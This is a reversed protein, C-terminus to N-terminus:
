CRGCVLPSIRVGRLGYIAIVYLFRFWLENRMLVATLLNGLVLAGLHNEAYPFKGLAALIIGVLNLTTILTFFKRYTNFWLDALIWRSIKPKIPAPKPVITKLEAANSARRGVPFSLSLEPVSPNPTIGEHLPSLPSLHTRSIQTNFQSSRDQTMYVFSSPPSQTPLPATLGATSDFIGKEADDISELSSAGALYHQSAGSM